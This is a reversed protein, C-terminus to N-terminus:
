LMKILSPIAKEFKVGYPHNKDGITEEICKITYNAAIKSAKFSDKGGMYAGVFASAFVDGTGHYAREIKKHCYYKKNGDKYVMVGTKGKKFSVGTLIVTGKCIKSLKELLKDIYEKDYEEKYETDTLFCAETINPLIFDALGVLDKMGNVYDLDFGVYLKGHDAFVPDIVNITKETEMINKVIEIQKQSGLYGTNIADFTLGEKKWHDHIKPLEDTLDLFTFAKFRGTHTSLVASPMIACEVGCASIIPLAVTVSCQGVCSIDQITLVRKYDM